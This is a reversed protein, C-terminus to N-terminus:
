QDGTRDQRDLRHEGQAGGAGPDELVLPRHDGGVSGTGRVPLVGDGDGVVAGADQGPSNAGDPKGRDPLLREPHHFDNVGGRLGRGPPPIWETRGDRRTRTRWGGPTILGHDPGCGFTLKDIDTPGGAAWDDVHHVDCRDGPVDCGPATCGRDRAHLALRQDASAIRRARGLYLPRESHSEFVCLYHLARSAMRVLDRMPLLSGGATVAQGAASCLQDVTATAIVTVPLGRHQGLRPDGLQRRVLFALADHQRQAHGRADRDVADQSPTETAAPREDAPNCMGPAAFKALWADLLARLEPTAVLKGISMGDPRQSGSWTFGRRLDRDSDSFRGDPNLTVALRDALRKVQDPRLEAAKEVLFAEAREVEIPPLHGPLERLFGQIVRLHEPDLVGAEWAKATAPLEPPLPEGTLTTRPRLQAADALRRRAEGPTLRAADALLRHPSGGMEDEGRRAVAAVLDHALATLRRRGTELWEVASLLEAAPEGDWDLAGLAQLAADFSAFATVRTSSM